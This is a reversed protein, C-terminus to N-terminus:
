LFIGKKRKKFSIQEEESALKDLAKLFEQMDRAREWMM